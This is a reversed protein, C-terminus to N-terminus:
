QSLGKTSYEVHFHGVQAAPKEMSSTDIWNVNIDTVIRGTENAYQQLLLRLQTDFNM